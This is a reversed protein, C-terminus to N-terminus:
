RHSVGSATCRRSSVPRVVPLARPQRLARPGGLGSAGWTRAAIRGRCRTAHTRSAMGAARWGRLAAAGAHPCVASGADSRLSRGARCARRCLPRCGSSRPGTGPSAARRQRVPSAGGGAATRRVDGSSRSARSPLCRSGWPTPAVRWRVAVPAGSGGASIVWPSVVGAGVGSPPRPGVMGGARAGRSRRGPVGRRAPPSTSAAPRAVAGRWWGRAPIPGAPPADLQGWCVPGPSPTCAKPTSPAAGGAGPAGPGVRTGQRGPGSTEAAGTRRRRQSPAGPRAHGARRRPGAACSAGRCRVTRVGAGGSAMWAARGRCSVAAHVAWSARRAPPSRRRACPPRRTARRRLRDRPRARGCRGGSRGAVARGTTRTIAQSRPSGPPARRRGSPWTARREGWGHDRWVPRQSPLVSGVFDTTVLAPIITLV